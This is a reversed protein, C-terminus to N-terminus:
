ANQGGYLRYHYKRSGTAGPLYINAELATATIRVAVSDNYGAVSTSGNAVWPVILKLNTGYEVEETWLMVRPIYGLNHTYITQWLDAYSLTMTGSALLNDYRFRSNIFFKSLPIPAAVSVDVDSPMFGFIRVMVSSGSYDLVLRVYFNDQTAQLSGSYNATQFNIDSWTTGGDISYLGFPLPAFSLPNPIDASFTGNSGSITRQISVVVEDTPMNSNIQFKRWDVM